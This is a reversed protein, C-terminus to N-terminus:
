FNSLDNIIECSAKQLNNTDSVTQVIRNRLDDNVYMIKFSLQSQDYNKVIKIYM